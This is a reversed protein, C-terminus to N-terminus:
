TISSNRSPKATASGRSIWTAPDLAHVGLNNILDDHSIQDLVATEHTWESDEPSTGMSLLNDDNGQWFGPKRIYRWGNTRKKGDIVCSQGAVSWAANDYSGFADVLTFDAPDGIAKTGDLISDNEIHYLLNIQNM